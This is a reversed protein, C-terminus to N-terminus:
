FLAHQNSQIGRSRLSCFNGTMSNFESTTATLVSRVAARQNTSKNHAVHPKPRQKSRGEHNASLHSTKSLPFSAQKLVM